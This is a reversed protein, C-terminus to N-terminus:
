RPACPPGQDLGAPSRRLLPSPSGCLSALACASSVSHSSVSLRAVPVALWPSAESFGVESLRIRSRWCGSGLSFDQGGDLCEQGRYKTIAAGLQCVCERLEASGRSPIRLPLAPSPWPCICRFELRSQWPQPVSDHLEMLCLAVGQSPM